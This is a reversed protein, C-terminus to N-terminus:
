VGFALLPLHTFAIIFTTEFVAYVAPFLAICTASHSMLEVPSVGDRSYALTCRNRLEVTLILRDAVFPRIMMDKRAIDATAICDAIPACESLSTVNSVSECAIPISLLHEAHIDGSGFSKM